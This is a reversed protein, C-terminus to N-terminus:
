LCYYRCYTFIATMSDRRAFGFLKRLVNIKTILRNSNIIFQLLTINGCLWIM